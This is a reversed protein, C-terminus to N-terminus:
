TWARSWCRRSREAQPIGTSGYARDDRHRRQRYRDARLRHRLRPRRALDAQDPRSPTSPRRTPRPTPRPTHASISGNNIIRGGRPDQAKMMRIAHQACLFAGTLNVDVVANWQELPPGGHADGARRHRRQQVAPRAPRLNGQNQRVVGQDLGPRRYRGARGPERRGGGRRGAVEELKDKRRGALVVTFGAHMLALAAGRGVGTGAGTVLAIKQAAM